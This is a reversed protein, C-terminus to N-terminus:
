TDKDILILVRVPELRRDDQRELRASPPQGDDAIVGLRNIREAGSSDAVDEVKGFLEARRCLDNRQLAIIARSLWNERSCM